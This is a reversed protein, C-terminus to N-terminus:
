SWLLYASRKLINRLIRKIWDKSRKAITWNDELAHDGPIDQGSWIKKQTWDAAPALWFSHNAPLGLHILGTLCIYLSGTANYSDRIGPQHGVSGIELWGNKDFTGPAEIMRRVVATM